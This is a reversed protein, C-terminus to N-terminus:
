GSWPFEVDSTARSTESGARLVASPTAYGCSGPSDFPDRRWDSPETLASTPKQLEACMGNGPLLGQDHHSPRRSAYDRLNRSSDRGRHRTLHRTRNRTPHIPLHRPGYGPESRDSYDPFSRPFSM